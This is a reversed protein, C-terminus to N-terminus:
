TSLPDNEYKISIEAICNPFFWSDLLTNRLHNTNPADVHLKKATTSEFNNTKYLLM